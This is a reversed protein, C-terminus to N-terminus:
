DSEDSKRRIPLIRLRSTMEDVTIIAGGQLDNEHESLVRVVDAGIAEPMVDQNRVQIVSPGHQGGAALLASFGLDHTFLVHDNARAWDMIIPDKAKPDGIQSRHIAEFGKSILFPVWAPSLNMDILIKV